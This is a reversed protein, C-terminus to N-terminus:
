VCSGLLVILRPYPNLTGDPKLTSNMIYQVDPNEIPDCLMVGAYAPCSVVFVGCFPVSTTHYELSAHVKHLVQCKQQQPLAKRKHYSAYLYSISFEQQQPLAAKNNCSAHIHLAMHIVHVKYSISSEQQQAEQTARCLRQWMFYGLQQRFAEHAARHM